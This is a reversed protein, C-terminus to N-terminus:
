SPEKTYCLLLSLHLLSCDNLWATLWDILLQNALCVCVDWWFTSFLRSLSVNRRGKFSATNDTSTWSFTGFLLPDLSVSHETGSSPRRRRKSVHMNGASRLRHRSPSVPKVRMIIVCLKCYLKLSCVRRRVLMRVHLLLVSSPRVSVSTPRQLVRAIEVARCHFM